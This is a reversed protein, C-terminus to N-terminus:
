KFIRLNLTEFTIKMEGKAMLKAKLKDANANSLDVGDISVFKWNENNSFSSNIM